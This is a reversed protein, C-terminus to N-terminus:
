HAGVQALNEIHVNSSLEERGLVNLRPFQAATLRQLHPRAAQSALLVPLLLQNWGELGHRVSRLLAGSGALRYCAVASRQQSLAALTEDAQEQLSLLSVSRVVSRLAVEDDWGWAQAAAHSLPDKMEARVYEAVGLVDLSAAATAKDSDNRSRASGSHLLIREIVSALDRISVREDALRAFVAALFARPYLRDIGAVLDALGGESIVRELLQETWALDAFESAAERLCAALHLILFDDAKWTTLLPSLSSSATDDIWSAIFGGAPNVFGHPDINASANTVYGTLDQPGVNVLIKSRPIEGNARSLGNVVIEYARDALDDAEAFEIAPFGIGLEASLAEHFYPLLEAQLRSEANDPRLERQLDRGLRVNITCPRCACSLVEVRSIADLAEVERASEALKNM